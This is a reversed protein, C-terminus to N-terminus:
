EPTSRQEMDGIILKTTGIAADLMSRVQAVQEPGLATSVADGEPGRGFTLRTAILMDLLDYLRAPASRDGKVERLKPRSM